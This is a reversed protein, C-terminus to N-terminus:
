PPTFSAAPPNYNNCLKNVFQRRSVAQPNLLRGANQNRPLPPFPPSTRLGFHSLLGIDLSAIDLVLRVAPIRVESNRIQFINRIEPKAPRPKVSRPLAAQEIRMPCEM